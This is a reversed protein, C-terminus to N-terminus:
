GTAPVFLGVELHGVDQLDRRCEINLDRQDDELFLYTLTQKKYKCLHFYITYKFM